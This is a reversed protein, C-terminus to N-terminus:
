DSGPNISRFLKLLWYPVGNYIKDYTEFANGCDWCEHGWDKLDKPNWDPNAEEYANRDGGFAQM